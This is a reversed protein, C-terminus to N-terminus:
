MSSIISKFLIDGEADRIVLLDDQAYNYYYPLTCDSTIEEIFQLYPFAKNNLKQFEDNKYIQVLVKETNVLMQFDINIQGYKKNNILWDPKNGIYKTRPNLLSIDYYSEKGINRYFTVDNITKSTSIYFDTEFEQSTNECHVTQDISLVNFKEKLHMGMLKTENFNNQTAIHTYGAHVISKAEPLTDLIKMINEAMGYEREQFTLHPDGPEYAFVLFGCNLAERLLNGFLPDKYLGFDDLHPMGRQNINPNRNNRLAEVFLYRYGLDFLSVIQEELYKRHRSIHHAENIMLIDVKKFMNKLDLDDLIEHKDSTNNYRNVMRRTFESVHNDGMYIELAKKNDGVISYATSLASYNNHDSMTAELSLLYGLFNGNQLRKYNEMDQGFVIVPLLLILFSIKRFLKM